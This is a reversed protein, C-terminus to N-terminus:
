AQTLAEVMDRKKAASMGNLREPENFEFWCIGTDTMRIDIGTYSGIDM